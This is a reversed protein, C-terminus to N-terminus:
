TCFGRQRPWPPLVFAAYPHQASVQDKLVALALGTRFGEPLVATPDKDIGRM